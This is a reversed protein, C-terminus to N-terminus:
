GGAPISGNTTTTLSMDHSNRSAGTPMPAINSASNAKAQCPRTPRPALLSLVQGAFHHHNQHDEVSQPVPHTELPVSTSKRVKNDRGPAVYQVGANNVLVDVLGLTLEASKIMNAIEAPKTMDAQPARDTRLRTILQCLGGCSILVVRFLVFTAAPM